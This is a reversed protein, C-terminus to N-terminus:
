PGAGVWGCLRLDAPGCLSVCVYPIVRASVRLCGPTHGQALVHFSWRCVVSPRLDKVEGGPQLCGQREPSPAPSLPRLTWSHWLWVRVKVVIPMRPVPERLCLRFIGYHGDNLYYLLKRRGGPLPFLAPRHHAQGTEGSVRLGQACRGQSPGLGAAGHQYCRNETEPTKQLGLLTPAQRRPERRGRQGALEGVEGM